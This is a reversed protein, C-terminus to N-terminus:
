YKYTYITRGNDKRMEVLDKRAEERYSIDNIDKELVRTHDNVVRSDFHHSSFVSDEPRRFGVNQAGSIDNDMRNVKFSRYETKTNTKIPLDQIPKSSRRIVRNIDMTMHNNYSINTQKNDLGTNLTNGDTIKINEYGDKHPNYSVQNYDTHSVRIVPTNSRYLIGNTNRSHMCPSKSVRYSVIRSNLQIPECRSTVSLNQDLKRVPETIDIAVRYISTSKARSKPNATNDNAIISQTTNNDTIEISFMPIIKYPINETNKLTEKLLSFSNRNEEIYRESMAIQEDAKILLEKTKYNKPECSEFIDGENDDQLFDIGSQKSDIMFANRLEYHYDNLSENKLESKLLNSEHVNLDYANLNTNSGVDVGENSSNSRKTMEDNTENSNVINYTEEEIEASVVKILKHINLKSIDDIIHESNTMDGKKKREEGKKKKHKPREPLEVQVKMTDDTSTHENIKQINTANVPETIMSDVDNKVISITSQSNNVKFYKNTNSDSHNKNIEIATQIEYVPKTHHKSFQYNDDINKTHLQTKNNRKDTISPRSPLWSSFESVILKLAEIPTVQEKGNFSLMRGILLGGILKFTGGYFVEHRANNLIAVLLRDNFKQRNPNYVKQIEREDTMLSLLVMGLSFMSSKFPDHNNTTNKQLYITYAIPSLYIKQGQSSHDLHYEYASTLDAWRDFLMYREEKPDYYILEPRIDRHVINKSELYALVDTIDNLLKMFELPNSLDSQRSYVDETAYEFYSRCLLYADDTEMYVTKLLSPHSLNFRIKMRQVNAEHEQINHAQKEKVMYLKEDTKNFYINVLGFRLDNYNSQVLELDTLLM